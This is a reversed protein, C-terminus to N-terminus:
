VKENHNPLMVSGTKGTVGLQVLHQFWVLNLIVGRPATGEWQLFVTVTALASSKLKSDM